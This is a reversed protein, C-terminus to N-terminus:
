ILWLIITAITVAVLYNHGHKEYRTAVARFDKPRNIAHEVVNRGKYAEADFRPPGDGRPGNRLRSQADLRQPCICRIGCTQIQQRYNRADYARDVRLCSPRKWPRGRGAHPVCIADLVARRHGCSPVTWRYHTSLPLGHGDVCLHIKSTIGGRSRGLREDTVAEKRCSAPRRAGVASRQAKIHTADLAAGDWDVLGANDAAAQM